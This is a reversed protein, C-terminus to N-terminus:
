LNGGSNTIQDRSNKSSIDHSSYVLEDYPVIDTPNPNCTRLGSDKRRRKQWKKYAKQKYQVAECCLENFWPKDSYRHSTQKAPVYVYMVDGLNDKVCSWTLDASQGKSLSTWEVSVLFSRM